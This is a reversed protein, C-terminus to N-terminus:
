GGKKRLKNGVIIVRLVKQVEPNDSSIWRGMKEYHKGLELLYKPYLEVSSDSTLTILSRIIAPCLVIPSIRLNRQTICEKYEELLTSEVLKDLIFSDFESAMFVLNYNDETSNNLYENIASISAAYISLQESPDTFISKLAGLNLEAFATIVESSMRDGTYMGLIVQMGFQFNGKRCASSIMKLKFESNSENSDMKSDIIERILLLNSWIPAPNSENPVRNKLDSIEHERLGGKRIKKAADSLEFAMQIDQLNFVNFAFNAILQSQWNSVSVICADFDNQLFQITASELPFHNKWESRKAAHSPMILEAMDFSTEKELSVTHLCSWIYAHTMSDSLKVEDQYEINEKLEAWSCLNYLCEFQRMELLDLESPSTEDNLLTNQYLELAASFNGMSELTIGRHTEPNLKIMHQYIGDMTDTLGISRYLNAISSWIENNTGVGSLKARKFDKPQLINAEIRDELLLIGMLQTNSKQSTSEVIKSDICTEKSLKCIIYIISKVLTHSSSRSLIKAAYDDIDNGFDKSQGACILLEEFVSGAIEADLQCLTRLPDVM